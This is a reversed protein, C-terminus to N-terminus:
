DIFRLEKPNKLGTTSYYKEIDGRIMIKKGLNNPNDALNLTDRIKGSPLQVPFIEATDTVNINDSMAIVSTKEFMPKSTFSNVNNGTFSGVVYGEVWMGKRGENAMAEAVTYPTSESGPIVPPTEETDELTVDVSPATIWDTIDGKTIVINDSGTLSVNFTYKTTREFHKYDVVDDMNYKYVAENDGIIFWISMESIDSEPIMISEALKGDDSLKIQINGFDGTSIFSSNILNFSSKRAVDCIIVKLKTLDHSTYNNINFILKSLQHRFKMNIIQDSQNLNTCNNSYLLDIDSQKTQNHLIVPFYFSEIEEKYPYYGIFDVDAGDEPFYISKTEDIPEFANGGGSNIYKINFALSETNLKTGSKLMYVGIADGKEWKNGSARASSGEITANLSVQEGLLRWDITKGECSILLICISLLLYNKTKM